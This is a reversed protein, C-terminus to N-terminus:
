IRALNQQLFEIFGQNRFKTEIFKFCFKNFNGLLHQFKPLFISVLRVGRLISSSHIQLTSSIAKRKSKEKEYFGSASKEIISKEEIKKQNKQKMKQMRFRDRHEIACFAIQLITRKM